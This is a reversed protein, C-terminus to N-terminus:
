TRRCIIALLHTKLIPNLIVQLENIVKEEFATILAAHDNVYVIKIAARFFLDHLQQL